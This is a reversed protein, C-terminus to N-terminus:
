HIASSIKKVVGGEIMEILQKLLRTHNPNGWLIDYELRWNCNHFSCENLVVPSNTVILTCNTFICKVFGHGSLMVTQSIFKEKEHNTLMIQQSM